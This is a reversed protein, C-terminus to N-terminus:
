KPGLQNMGEIDSLIKRFEQWVVAADKKYVYYTDFFKRTIEWNGNNLFHLTALSIAFMKRGGDDSNDKFKQPLVAKLLQLNKIAAAATAATDGSLVFRGKQYRYHIPPPTLLGKATDTYLCAYCSYFYGFGEYLDYTFEYNNTICSHGGFLKTQLNYTGTADPALVFFEDCCHMGGTYNYVVLEDIGDKDLDHLGVRVNSFLEDRVMQKLSMRPFGPFAVFLSNSDKVPQAAKFFWNFCNREDFPDDEEEDRPGAISTDALAPKVDKNGDSPQNCAFALM